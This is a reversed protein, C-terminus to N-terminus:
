FIGGLCQWAAPWTFREEYLRRGALGIRRREPPSDLLAVIKAAFDRPDGAIILHEGAIGLGEAGLSTSVVPTAAAWAELIKLRTGSGSLVPVVAIQAAALEAVADKVPGTLQIREDGAVLGRIAGPNKGIIKWKLNPRPRLLPWIRRCFFRVAQINPEYELNGSFAIEERELRPPAPMEPLANPYVVIRTGPALSRMREAEQNSPVLITDFQPLLRAEMQRAVAAFRRLAAARLPTEGRSLTQHWVSEINHLDLIIQKASARLQRIYAACWFHEVIAVEYRRGSLLATIPQEFGSFRDILPPVGRIARGANRLLRAAATKSHYPLDLVDIHRIKGPPLAASPDSAGEDRFLVLDVSYRLSVYELLSASRLPGGGVPPYPPEPSLFLAEPKPASASSPKTM